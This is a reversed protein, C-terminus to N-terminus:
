NHKKENDRAKHRSIIRKTKQCIDKEKETDYEHEYKSGIKKENRKEVM